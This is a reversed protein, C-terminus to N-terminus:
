DGGDVAEAAQQRGLEELGRGAAAEEEALGVLVVEGAGVDRGVEAFKEIAGVSGLPGQQVEMLELRLIEADLRPEHADHDVPRRLHDRAIVSLDRDLRARDMPEEDMRIRLAIHRNIQARRVRSHIILEIADEKLIPVPVPMICQQMIAPDTQQLIKSYTEREREGGRERSRTKKLIRGWVFM